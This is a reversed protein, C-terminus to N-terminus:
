EIIEVGFHDSVIQGNINNFVVKSQKVPIKNNKLIFDIRMSNLKKYEKWGDILGSVTIGDDKKEALNYTDYWGSKLLSDYGEDRIEAPNNFDGMLYIDLKEFILNKNLKLLQERFPEESDNWWGTHVSFFWKEKNEIEIKIGIVKRVKFNDYAKSNSIYFEKVEKPRYKSIIGIGEDFIGYGIKIPTWTWYYKKGSENLYKILNLIHNDKKIVIDKNSSIYNLNDSINIVKEDCSQNSEQVAIVDYDNEVIWKAFYELKEDYKKEIISHTNCTLLKM